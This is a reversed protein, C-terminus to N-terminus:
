PEAAPARQVRVFMAATTACIIALLAYSARPGQWDALRSGAVPGFKAVDNV